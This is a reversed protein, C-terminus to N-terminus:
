QFSLLSERLCLFTMIGMSPLFSQKSHQQPSSRTELSPKPLTPPQQLQLMNQTVSFLSKPLKIEMVLNLKQSRTQGAKYSWWARSKEARTCNLPQEWTSELPKQLTHGKLPEHILQSSFSTLSSVSIDFVNQSFRICISIHCNNRCCKIYIYLWLYLHFVCFKSYSASSRPFLTETSFDPM